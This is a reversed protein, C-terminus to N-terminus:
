QITHISNQQKLSCLLSHILCLCDTIYNGELTNCEMMSTVSKLGALNAINTPQSATNFSIHETVRMILATALSLATSVLFQLMFHMEFHINDLFLQLPMSMFESLFPLILQLATYIGAPSWGFPPCLTPLARATLPCHAPSIYLSMKYMVNWTWM